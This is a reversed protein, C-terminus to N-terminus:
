PSDPNSESDDRDIQYQHNQYRLNRYNIQQFQNENEYNSVNDGYAIDLRRPNNYNRSDNNGYLSNRSIIGIISNLGMFRLRLISYICFIIIFSSFIMYSLFKFPNQRIIILLTRKDEIFDDIKIIISPNNFKWEMIENNINESKIIREKKTYLKILDNTENENSINYNIDLVRKKNKINRKKDMFIDKKVIIQFNVIISELFKIKKDIFIRTNNIANYKNNECRINLEENGNEDSNNFKYEKNLKNTSNLPITWYCISKINDLNIKLDLSLVYFYKKSNEGENNTDNMKNLLNYNFETSPIYTGYGYNTMKIKLNLVIEDFLCNKLEINKLDDNEFISKRNFYIDHYRNASSSCPSYEAKVLESKIFFMSKQIAYLASYLNKELIDMTINRNPFFTNSNNKGNGLEPSFSLISKKGFLWDTAEGNTM